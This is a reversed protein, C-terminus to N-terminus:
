KPEEPLDSDLGDPIGDWSEKAKRKRKKNKNTVDDDGFPSTDIYEQHSDQESDESYIADSVGDQYYNTDPDFSDYNDALYGEGSEDRIETSPRMGKIAAHVAIPAEEYQQKITSVSNTTSDDCELAKGYYFYIATMAVQFGHDGIYRKLPRKPAARMTLAAYGKGKADAYIRHNVQLKINIDDPKQWSATVPVRKKSDLANRNLIDIHIFYEDPLLKMIPTLDRTFQWLKEPRRFQCNNWSTLREMVVYRGVNLVQLQEEKSLAKFACILLTTTRIAYADKPWKPLVYSSTNSLYTEGTAKDRYPRRARNKTSKRQNLLFVANIFQDPDLDRESAWLRAPQTGNKPHNDSQETAFLEFEDSDNSNKAEPNLQNKETLLNFVNLAHYFEKVDNSNSKNDYDIIGSAAVADDKIENPLIQCWPALEQNLLALLGLKNLRDFYTRRPLNLLRANTDSNLSYDHWFEASYCWQISHLYHLLTMSPSSHGAMASVAHLEGKIASNAAQSFYQKRAQPLHEMVEHKLFEQLPHPKDYKHQQWYWFTWSVFSHRLRHYRFGSDKTVEKLLTVVPTFAADVDLPKNLTADSFLYTTKEWDQQNLKLYENFWERETASLLTGLPIRREAANSKLKRIQHPRVLLETLHSIRYPNDGPTHLDTIRLFLAESRRLGCRFGLILLLLRIYERFPETSLKSRKLMQECAAKYESPLLINADVMLPMKRSDQMVMTSCVYSPAINYESELFLQFDRLIKARRMQARLKSAEEIIEMYHEDLTDTDLQLPNHASFSRSLPEFISGLYSALNGPRLKCSWKNQSTLRVAAWEILLVTIPLLVYSDDKALAKLKTSLLKLPPSTETNVVENTEVNPQKSYRVLERKVIKIVAACDTTAQSITPFVLEKVPVELTVDDAVNDVSISQRSGLLRLFNDPAITLNPEEGTLVPLHCPTHTLSLRAVIVGFLQNSNLLNPHVCGSKRLFFQLCRLWNLQKFAPDESWDNETRFRYYRPLLASTIPDPLWQFDEKLEGSIAFWVINNFTIPQDYKLHSLMSIMLDQRLLGGFRLSTYLLQGIYFQANEVSGPNNSAASYNLDPDKLLQQDLRDLEPLYQSHQQRLPPKPRKILIPNKLNLTRKLRARNALIYQNLEHILATADKASAQKGMEDRINRDYLQWFIQAYESQSINLFSDHIDRVKHKTVALMVNQLAPTLEFFNM